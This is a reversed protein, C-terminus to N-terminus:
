PLHAYVAEEFDTAAAYAAPDLFPLLQTAWLGAVGRERDVWWYLNALGAWAISGASRGTPLAEQTVMGLASWATPVGPHLEMAHAIGPQVSPLPTMAPGPRGAEALTAPSLVRGHRGEGDSLLMALLAAYDLATTFLGQGGMDVEPSDEPPTAPGVARIEGRRRTHLSAARGRMATTRVFATDSMGLPELLLETMAAGLRMGTVGEVVLGAWDTSSGYLWRTGPDFLLPTRLSARTASAIPPVGFDRTLLAYSPDFFDYAFGATHELLHRTTVPCVAPRTRPGDDGFGTLVGIEGLEPCYRAAPADLDLRGAEALALCTLATLVKTTSFAALVTDPTMPEPEGARRVGAAGAYRLGGAGVVVAVVGAMAGEGVVARELAADCATTLDLTM